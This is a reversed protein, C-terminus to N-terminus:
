WIYSILLQKNCTSLINDCRNPVSKMNIVGVSCFLQYTALQWSLSEGGVQMLQRQYDVSEPPEDSVDTYDHIHKYTISYYLYWSCYVIALSNISDTFCHDM